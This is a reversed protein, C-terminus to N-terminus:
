WWSPFSVVLGDGDAREGSFLNVVDVLYWIGCGGFTLLKGVGKGHNGMYFQDAGFLGFPTVTFYLLSM